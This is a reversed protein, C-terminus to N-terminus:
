SVLLPQPQRTGGGLVSEYLCALTQAEAEPDFDRRILARGQRGLRRARVPDGLLSLITAALASSDNPPVRLGTEEHTVLTRLGEIDTAVCPVGSAMATALTRGVTPTLSTQCFVDLVSWFRLGVVPQGAFTVRDAIKLRAARRRLDVEDEGQGAIVFEADVGADLVRRAASLFTAFGSSAVLPGATGIVPVRGTQVPIDTEDGPTSIGPYVVSVFPSLIGFSSKL